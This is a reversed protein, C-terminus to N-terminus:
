VSCSICEVEDASSIYSKRVRTYYLSKLGLKHASVYYKVLDSTTTESNAHIITSIGQDIHRQIIAVLKLVEIQDMDYASKYAFLTKYSLYPMPYYTTSNEYVRTEIPTSVPMISPTANMIYGTSQNPAIALRYAHYMGFERVDKALNNWDEQTPIYIGSLVERVKDTKIVPINYDIFYKGLCYDSANFGEFTEGKERAINMSSLISYYNILYFIINVLDKAERSEFPINNIALLGHLNMAGLGVSHFVKNSKYISPPLKDECTDKTIDSVNTLMRMANSVSKEFDKSNVLNVLNLSGLVCSIGNGYSPDETYGNPDSPSSLQMIETCLNSFNVTGLLRLPHNKNANDKFFLYPYGSEKQVQAVLTLFERATLQSKFKVVKGEEVLIDYWESMDMDDLYIGYEKKVSYPNFTYFPKNTYVLEIFKDPVILGLSITKLRLKEDSNLKKSDLFDFVDAHFINLYLAGAGSRQGLQNAYTFVDDFIKAVPMVGSGRGDVGKIPEGKARLKSLNLGVGGGISSLRLSEDVSYSIGSMSDSLEDLFCSVLEGSRKRGANLFTPTAPQYIQDIMINAFERADQESGRALYLAACCVRDEYRELYTEGDDDKLAYSQYFKSAAMFSQFRFKKSYILKFLDKIFEMSYLERFDYWYDNNVLYDLKEELSYFFRTHKNINNIFFDKVAEKDYKLNDLNINGNDDKVAVKNNKIIYDKM